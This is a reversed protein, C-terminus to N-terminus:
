LARLFHNLFLSTLAFITFNFSFTFLSIFDCKSLLTNWKLNTGDLTGVTLGKLYGLVEPVESSLFEFGVRASVAGVTASGFKLHLVYTM